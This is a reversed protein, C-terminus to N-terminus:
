EQEKREVGQKRFFLIRQCHSCTQIDGSTIVDAYKQPPVSVRCGLCLEDRVEAVADGRLAQVRQYVHLNESDIAPLLREKAEEVKALAGRLEGAEALLAAEEQEFAAKAKAVDKEVAKIKKEEEGSKEMLDLIKEEYRDQEKKLNDIEGLITQYEKNTKVLSTQENLKRIKALHADLDGEAKRHEKHMAALDERALALSQEEKVYLQRQQEIAKPVEDLKRKLVAIERDLGALDILKELQTEMVKEVQGGSLAGECRGRRGRGEISM